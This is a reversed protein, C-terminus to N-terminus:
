ILKKVRFMRDRIQAAREFNLDGAAQKMEKELGKIYAILEERNMSEPDKALKLTKKKSEEVAMTAQIIDHVKKIISQPTIGHKENYKLQLDRRRKTESIAYDMSRTVRDAYM